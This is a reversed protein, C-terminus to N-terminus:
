DKGGLIMEAAKEAIMVVPAATQGGPLKPIVSADVVRLNPVGFVRLSSDVVAGAGPDAGMACTGVVANASHATSRLYEVLDEDTQVAKGPYTESDSLAALPGQAAMDRALRVGSILTQLDAPDTLYGTSIVPKAAPDASALRLSGRSQPRVAIPQFSFGSDFQAGGWNSGFKTYTAVGDPASAHAPVFRVQLDPAGADAGERTQFFGGHDCGPTTLPGNRFMMWRLFAMPSPFGGTRIEDTVSLKKETKYSVVAAPHDQLNQGVGPLDVATGIGMDRLHAGPGIGSLMLVQPTGIAGSAMIVEGGEALEAVVDQGAKDRYAVGRAKGGDMAVNTIHVESRVELNGRGEAAALYGSAASCREGQKQAVHFRGYGEQPRGWDNFDPNNALGMQSCVELFSKCLTNQYPTESVYYHGGAGHYQSEGGEFHESKKFYDLVDAGGWGEVGWADYDAASGRHYLMVNACSSGGVVKGRCLYVGRGALGPEAGASSTYDWDLRSKFLKVIGAPIKVYPHTYDGTGAELVLVRKGGGQSLRNALVCGATGGGAVIFDWREAGAGGGAGGVLGRAAGRAAAGRLARAAAGALAAPAGAM